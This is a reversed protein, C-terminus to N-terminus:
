FVFAYILVTYVLVCIVDEDCDMLSVSPMITKGWEMVRQKWYERGGKKGSTCLHFSNEFLSWVLLYLAM